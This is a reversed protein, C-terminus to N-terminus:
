KGQHVVGCRLSYCDDASLFPFVDLLYKDYWKKYDKNRTRGDPKGLAACVDPLALSLMVALYYLHHGLAVEVEHLLSALPGANKLIPVWCERQLELRYGTLSAGYSWILAETDARM